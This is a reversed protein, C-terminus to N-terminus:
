VYFTSAFFLTIIEITAVKNAKKKTTAIKKKNRKVKRLRKIKTECM